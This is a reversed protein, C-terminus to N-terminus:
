SFGGDAVIVQGNIIKSDPSLLFKVIKAIDEPSGNQGIPTQNAVKKVWSSSSKLTPPSTILGPSIPNVRIRSKQLMVALTKTIESLASKSAAYGVSKYSSINPGLISAINLIVGGPQIQPFLNRILDIPATLHLEIQKDWATLNTQNIEDTEYEGANNVLAFFTQDKLTSIFKSRSPRTTLNVQVFKIRPFKVSIERAKKESKNYTGIVSYGSQALSEAIAQGIGSSAGTVLVLKSALPAM